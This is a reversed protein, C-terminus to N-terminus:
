LKLMMKQKEYKGNINKAKRKFFSFRRLELQENKEEGSESHLGRGELQEFNSSRLLRFRTFTGHVSHVTYRTKAWCNSNM